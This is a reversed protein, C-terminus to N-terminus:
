QLKGWLVLACVEMRKRIPNSIGETPVMQSIKEITLQLAKKETDRRLRFLIKKNVISISPDLYIKGNSQQSAAEVQTRLSPYMIDPCFVSWGKCHAYVEMICMVYWMSYILCRSQATTSFRAPYCWQHLPCSSPYVEPSPSPCPPRAQQLGHPQLSDSM